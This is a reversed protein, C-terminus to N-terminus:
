ERAPHLARQTSGRFIAGFARASEWVAINVFHFTHAEAPNQQWHADIFGTTRTLRDTAGQCRRWFESGCGAPDVFQNTSTTDM